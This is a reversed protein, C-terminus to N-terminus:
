SKARCAAELESDLRMLNDDILSLVSANSDGLPITISASANRNDNHGSSIKICVTADYNGIIRKAEKYRDIDAILGKIKEYKTVRM